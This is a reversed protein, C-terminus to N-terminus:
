EEEEVFEFCPNGDCEKSVKIYEEDSLGLVEIYGWEYAYLIKVHDENYIIKKSDPTWGICDFMQVKNPFKKKLFEIIKEARTM